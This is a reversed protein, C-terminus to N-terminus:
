TAVTHLTLMKAGVAQGGKELGGGMDM